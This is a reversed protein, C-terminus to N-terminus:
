RCTHHVKYVTITPGQIKWPEPAASYVVEFRPDTPLDRYFAASRPYKQQEAVTLFKNSVSSSTVILDFCASPYYALDEVELGWVTSHIDYRPGSVNKM